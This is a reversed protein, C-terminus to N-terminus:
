TSCFLYVSYSFHPKENKKVNYTRDYFNECAVNELSGNKLFNFEIRAMMLYFINLFELLFKQNIDNFNISFESSYM